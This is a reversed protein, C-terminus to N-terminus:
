GWTALPRDRSCPWLYVLDNHVFRGHKSYIVICLKSHCFMLWWLFHCLMLLWRWLFAM